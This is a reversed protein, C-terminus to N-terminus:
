QSLVTGAATIGRHVHRDLHQFECEPVTRLCVTDTGGFLQRRVPRHSDPLLLPHVLIWRNSVLIHDTGQLRIGILKLLVFIWAANRAVETLQM